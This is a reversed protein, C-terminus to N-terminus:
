RETAKIIKKDFALVGAGTKRALHIVICDEVSLRSKQSFFEQLMEEKEDEDLPLVRIQRSGVIQSYAEKASSVGAEYNLVTLTEYLIAEPLIMEDEANQESLLAAKQHNEDEPLFFSVLYSSDLIM